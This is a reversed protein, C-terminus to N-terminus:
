REHLEVTARAIDTPCGVPTEVHLDVRETEFGTASVLIVHPGPDLILDFSKCPETGAAQDACSADVITGHESFSTGPIAAGDVSGVVTVNATVGEGVDCPQTEACGLLCIVSALGITPLISSSFRTNSV